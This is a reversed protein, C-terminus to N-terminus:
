DENLRFFSTKKDKKRTRILDDKDLEFDFLDINDAMRSANKSKPIVAIHNQILYKLAVQAANKNYKRGIEILLDDSCINSRGSTLPSWAQMQTGNRKGVSITNERYYYIHIESQLVQPIMGCVKVFDAFQHSNFNSLGIARLKGKSYAYKMAEYMEMAEIYPGHILMLDIYDTQLRELSEEIGLLANKYGTSPLFLKTTLFFNKRAIGSNKLAKGLMVENGYMQATDFLRYGKEVATLIAYEGSKSEMQWTGLGVAPMMIGNNLKFYDM